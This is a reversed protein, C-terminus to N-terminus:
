GGSVSTPPPPEAQPAADQLVKGAEEEHLRITALISKVEQLRASLRRVNQQLSRKQYRLAAERVGGDDFAEEGSRWESASAASGGHESVLFARSGASIAIVLAIVITLLSHAALWARVARM